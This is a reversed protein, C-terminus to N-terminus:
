LKAFEEAFARLLTDVEADLEAQIEEQTRGVLRAALKAPLATLGQKVVLIRQVRGREVEARELLDGRRQAVELERKAADALEKRAAAVASLKRLADPPLRLARDIGDVGEFAEALDRQEDASLKPPGPAAARPGHPAPAAEPQPPTDGAPAAPPEAPQAERTLEVARPRRGRGWGLANAELYARVEPVRVMVANFPGRDPLVPLPPNRRRAAHLTQRDIGLAKAADTLCMVDPDAPVAPTTV